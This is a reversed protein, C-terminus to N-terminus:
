KPLAFMWLHALLNLFPSDDRDYGCVGQFRVGSQTALAGSAASAVDKGYVLYVPIVRQRQVM